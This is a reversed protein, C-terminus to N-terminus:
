WQFLRLTKPLIYIALSPIFAWNLTGVLSKVSNLDANSEIENKSFTLSLKATSSSPLDKKLSVIFTLFLITASPNFSSKNSTEIGPM